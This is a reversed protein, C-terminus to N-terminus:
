QDYPWGKEPRAYVSRRGVNKPPVVLAIPPQATAVPFDFMDSVSLDFAAAIRGINELGPCVELREIHGIYNRHLGALEALVEQSWGHRKRLEIMRQAFAHALDSKARM